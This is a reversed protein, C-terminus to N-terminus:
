DNIKSCYGLAFGALWAFLCFGIGAGLFAIWFSSVFAAVADFENGM